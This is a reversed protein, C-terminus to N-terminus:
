ADVGIESVTFDGFDFYASETTETHCSNGALWNVPDGRGRRNAKLTGRSGSTAIITVSGTPFCHM